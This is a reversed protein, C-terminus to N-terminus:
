KRKLRVGVAVLLLVAVLIVLLSSITRWFRAKGNTAPVDEGNATQEAKPDLSSTPKHGHENRPKKISAANTAAAEREMQELVGGFYNRAYDSSDPDDCAIRAIRLRASSNKYSVEEFDHKGLIMDILVRHYSDSISHRFLAERAM